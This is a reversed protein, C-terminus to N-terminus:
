PVVELTEISLEKFKAEIMIDVDLGYLKVPGYCLDSHAPTEKELGQEIGRSESFHVVPTVEGWTSVALKLAEEESLGGTCFKHHHYDFVIPTGCVEYVRMLDKVSFMRAKDDNELTLRRQVSPSLLKFNEIFREIANDHDGAGVGLHINIKNHYSPELGMADLVEGHTELDKVTRRVTDPNKSGLVNFPGPHYTLRHSNTTAFNGVQTLLEKVRHANPLEDLNYGLEEHSMFPFMESSMRLFKIGRAENWELIQLLDQLNLEIKEAVTDIDFTRKICTRNTFVKSKAKGGLCKQCRGCRTGMQQITKDCSGGLEMNICAYGIKM